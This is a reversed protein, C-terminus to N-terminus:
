HYSKNNSKQKRAKKYKIYYLLNVCDFIFDSGKTSKELRLQYRNLTSKFLYETVEDAKDYVTIEVADSKSHMVFEEDTDRSSLFNIAITM